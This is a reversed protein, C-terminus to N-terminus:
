GNAKEKAKALTRTVNLTQTAKCEIVFSEDDSKIMMWAVLMDLFLDTEMVVVDRVGDPTRRSGKGTLRKWALVVRNREGPPAVAWVDGKDNGGGEALRDALLGRDQIRRVLETEFATGQIKPKNVM